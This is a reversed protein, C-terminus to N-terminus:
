AGRAAAKEMKLTDCLFDCLADPDNEKEIRERFQDDMMLRALKAFIKMHENEGSKEVAAFLVAVRVDQGDLSNWNIPTRLKLIALSSSKLAGTKCHPIAFGNGFGTSYTQERQWVAEEVARSNETRGTVYLRDAAQKIAEEKTRADSDFVMLDPETLPVSRQTTFQKLLAAAEEATASDQAAALLQRCDEYSLEAAQAKLAAIRPASVGIEDLGLGIMLPLFDGAM